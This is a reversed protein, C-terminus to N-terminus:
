YRITFSIEDIQDAIQKMVIETLRCIFEQKCADNKFVWKNSKEKVPVLKGDAIFTAIIVMEENTVGSVM